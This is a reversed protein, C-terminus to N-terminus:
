VVALATGVITIVVNEIVTNASAPAYLQLIDGIALTFDGSITVTGTTNGNTFTANGVSVGNREIPYIVTADPAVECKALHGGAASVTVARTVLFAGVQIDTTDATGGVFFAMDYPHNHSTISVVTSGIEINLDTHVLGTAEGPTTSNIRNILKAVHTAADQDELTLFKSVFERPSTANPPAHGAAVITQAGLSYTEIVQTAVPSALAELAVNAISNNPDVSPDCAVYVSYGYINTAGVSLSANSGAGAGPPLTIVPELPQYNIGGALVSVATISGGSITAQALAATGTASAINLTWTGDTYGTGANNIAISLISGRYTDDWKIDDEVLTVVGSTTLFAVLSTYSSQDFLYGLKIEAIHNDVINQATIVSKDNYVRIGAPYSLEPDGGIWVQETDATLALEGPKLPQPLNERRGRRHQIRSIVIPNNSM